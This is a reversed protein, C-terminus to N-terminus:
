KLQKRILQACNLTSEISCENFFIRTRQRFSDLALKDITVFTNRLYYKLSAVASVNDSCIHHPSAREILEDSVSWSHRGFVIRPVVGIRIM